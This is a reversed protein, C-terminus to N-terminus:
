EDAPLLGLKILLDESVVFQCGTVGGLQVEQGAILSRRIAALQANPSGLQDSLTSLLRDIDHFTASWRKGGASIPLGLAEVKQWSQRGADVPIPRFNLAYFNTTTVSRELNMRVAVSEQKKLDSVAQSAGEDTFGVDRLFCFLQEGGPIYHPKMPNGSGTPGVPAFM